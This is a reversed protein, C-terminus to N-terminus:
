VDSVRWPFTATVDCTHPVYTAQVFYAESTDFNDYIRSRYAAPVHIHSLAIVTSFGPCVPMCRSLVATSGPVLGPTCRPLVTVTLVFNTLVTGRSIVTYRSKKAPTSDPCHPFPKILFTLRYILFCIVLM